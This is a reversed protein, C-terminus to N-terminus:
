SLPVPPPRLWRRGGVLGSMVMGFIMLCRGGEPVTGNLAPPDWEQFGANDAYDGGKGGFQSFLYVYDSSLSGAFLSQPIFAFLDAAGSGSSVLAYNLLIESDEGLDLSYRLVSSGDQLDDLSDASTLAEDRTYILLQDLSLLPKAKSQNIDLRLEYYSVDDILVTGFESLQIDRTFIPSTNVDDMVPRASANFGQSSGKQAGLRVFPNFVGSGAAGAHAARFLAGNIKGEAGYTTLDLSTVLPPPALAPGSVPGSGSGPPDKIKAAWIGPATFCMMAVM